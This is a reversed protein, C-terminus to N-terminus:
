PLFGDLLLVSDLRLVTKVFFKEHELRVESLMEGLVSLEHDIHGLEVKNVNAVYSLGLSSIFKSFSLISLSLENLILDLRAGGLSTFVNFLTDLLNKLFESVTNHGFDSKVLFSLLVVRDLCVSHAHLTFLLVVNELLESERRSHGISM